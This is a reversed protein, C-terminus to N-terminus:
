EANRVRATYEKFWQIEEPDHARGDPELLDHFWRAPVPAGAVSGWHYITNSRGRVLGWNLCGVGEAAFVALSPAVESGGRRLWETCILPRGHARLKVIQARLDDAGNYNHFSVVDSLRLQEANLRDFDGGGSWLGATLPQSPGAARAWAFVARLLPLSKIGMGSNGPENYLDWMLVREDTAFSGVVDRVYDELRLWEAPDVTARSGPSRMWCSNHVGPRPEPQPGAQPDDNGCDDFLVLIPRIGQRDAITLFADLRQKFGAPDAEWALDHLYTRVTNMGIRAAWNLEREITLPDWTAAQWMELQNSATSPLFNCGVPWPQLSYWASAREATWPLHLDAAVQPAGTDLTVEWRGGAARRWTTLYVGRAQVAGAISYTWDGHTMGSRLDAFVAVGRPEWELRADPDTFLATDGARIGARGQQLAGFLDLRVADPAMVAMWGEIGRAAVDACFARDAAALETLAAARNTAPPAVCSGLALLPLLHLVKV